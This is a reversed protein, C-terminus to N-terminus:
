RNKDIDNDFDWEETVTVIKSITKEVIIGNEIVDECVNYLWYTLKLPGFAKEFKRKQVIVRSMYRFVSNFLSWLTM